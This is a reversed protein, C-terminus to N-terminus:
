NSCKCANFTFDFRGDKLTITRGSGNQELLVFEFEGSIIKSQYDIKTIIFKSGPLPGTFFGSNGSAWDEPRYTIGISDIKNGVTTITGIGSSSITLHSSKSGRTRTFGFDIGNPAAGGSAGYRALIENCPNSFSECKSYPVWVEGDITFGVTNKGEQTAPPLVANKTPDNNKKCGTFSSLFIPLLFILSSFRLSM